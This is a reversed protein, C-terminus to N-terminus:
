ALQELARARSRRLALGGAAFGCIMMAWTSPEPVNSAVDHRFAIYGFGTIDDNWISVGRIDHVGGDRSFGFSAILPLSALTFSQILSGDDGFFSVYANGGNGGALRFGFESQDTSFLLSVAGEGIADFEPFGLTGNAALVPGAPSQFVTLNQGPAGASLVLPGSPTGGLQDFNGFASVTQGDFHEGFGVGNVAIVSDYNTGVGAGGPIGGFSVFETGTLSAYSVQGIQASLAAPSFLGFVLVAIAACKRPGAHQKVISNYIVNQPRM